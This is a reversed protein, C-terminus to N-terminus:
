DMGFPGCNELDGEREEERVQSQVHQERDPVDKTRKKMDM